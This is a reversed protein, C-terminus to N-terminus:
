LMIQGHAESLAYEKQAILVRSVRLVNVDLIQHFKFYFSLYMGEMNIVYVKRMVIIQANDM